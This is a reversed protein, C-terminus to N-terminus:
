SIDKVMRFPDPAPYVEHTIDLAPILITKSYESYLNGFDTGNFSAMAVLVGTPINAFAAWNGGSGMGGGGPTSILGDVWDTWNALYASKLSIYGPDAAGSADLLEFLNITDDLFGM